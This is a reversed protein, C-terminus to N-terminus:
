PEDSQLQCTVSRTADFTTWESQSETLTKLKEKLGRTQKVLFDPIHESFLKNIGRV